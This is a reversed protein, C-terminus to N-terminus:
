GLALNKLHNPLGIVDQAEEAKTRKSKPMKNHPLYYNLVLDAVNDILYKEVLPAVHLNLMEDIKNSFIKAAEACLTMKDIAVLEDFHMSNIILESITSKKTTINEKSVVWGCIVSLANEKNKLIVGTAKESVLLAEIIEPYGYVAAFILATDGDSNTQNLDIDKHQLLAKVIETHGRGASLILATDGNQTNAQNVNTDEIALLRMVSELDGVIAAQMLETYGDNNTVNLTPNTSESEQYEKM